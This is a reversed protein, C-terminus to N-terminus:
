KSNQRFEKLTDNLYCLDDNIEGYESIKAALYDKCLKVSKEQMEKLNGILSDYFSNIMSTHSEISQEFVQRNKNVVKWANEVDSQALRAEERFVKTENKMFDEASKLPMIEQGYKSKKCLCISCLIERTPKCFM